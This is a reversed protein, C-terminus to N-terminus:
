PEEEEELFFNKGKQKMLGDELLKRIMAAAISHPVEWQQILQGMTYEQDPLLLGCCHELMQQDPVNPNLAVMKLQAAATEKEFDWYVNFYCEEDDKHRVTLLLARSDIVKRRFAFHVDYGGMLVTSGRVEQDIDKDIPKGTKRSWEEKTLHHLWMVSCGMSALRIQDLARMVISMDQASNEDGANARALTDIVVFKIEKEAVLQCIKQCWDINDLMIPYRHVFYIMGPPIGLGDGNELLRWRSRTQKRPGELELILCRVPKVPELAALKQGSALARVMQFAFWTKFALKPIGSMIIAADAPVLNKLLWEPTPESDVQACWDELLPPPWVFKKPVIIEGIKM